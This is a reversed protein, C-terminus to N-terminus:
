DGLKKQEVHANVAVLQPNEELVAILQEASKAAADHEEILRRIVVLDDGTDLTIRFASADQARRIDIGTSMHARVYPTVHERDVDATARAEAEFLAQAGFIEFDLGRPYTREVVNSAYARPDGADLYADVGRRVLEGDILPCDSTVRVIVELDFERAAGAFRGLVDPESGRFSPVEMRSAAEVIPEDTLNETTAIFVPLGSDRLRSVHHELMTRGAAELLVKGPLRTSTMRAQSIIGIRTM